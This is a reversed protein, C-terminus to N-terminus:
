SAPPAPSGDVPGGVPAGGNSGPQFTGVGCIQDWLKRKVPDALVEREFEDNWVSVDGTVDVAKPADLGLLERRAASLKIFRDIADLHGAVVQPWIGRQAIDQREAELAVQLEAEEDTQRKLKKLRRLVAQRAGELTIHLQDAIHQYSFGATRMTMAMDERQRALVAKPSTESNANM